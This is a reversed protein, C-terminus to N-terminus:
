GEIWAMLSEAAKQKKDMPTHTYRREIEESAHGVMARMVDPAIDATVRGSCATHRISHFSLPSVRKRRGKLQTEPQERTIGSAKLLASFEASISSDKRKYRSAMTPFVYEEKEDLTKRRALLREKVQAPISNTISAGTKGTTITVEGREFDFNSWKLMCVDGLRLAGLTYSALAMDCWPQPFEYIIRRMEERTFPQKTVKDSTIEPNVRAAINQMKVIRPMPSRPLLEDDVATNFITALMSRYLNVTGTAVRQLAYEFFRTFTNKNLADLRIDANKGLFELFMTVARKRNNETSETAQGRFTTLYERVSPVTSAGSCIKEVSRMADLATSRNMTGRAAQEMIQAKQRAEDELSASKRGKQEVPVHTNVKKQKGNVRFVALWTGNRKIIGAM